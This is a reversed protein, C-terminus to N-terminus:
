NNILGGWDGRIHRCKENKEPCVIHLFTYMCIWGHLGHGTVRGAAPLIGGPGQGWPSQLVAVPDHGCLVCDGREFLLVTDHLHVAVAGDVAPEDAGVPHDFDTEPVPSGTPVRAEEHPSPSSSSPRARSWISEETSPLSNRRQHVTYQPEM